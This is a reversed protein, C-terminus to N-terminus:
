GRQIMRPVPQIYSPSQGSGPARGSTNLTGPQLWTQGPTLPSPNQLWMTEPAAGVYVNWAAANRPANGSQILLTSASTKVAAPVACAGEEGQSNVWAMTVYYTNDPLPSTGQPGPAAVVGPIAPQPVPCSAIGIGTQILKEYAWDAMGHFQDRKGAYRDNLQNCYADAYVLELTRFTHSLKLAPTVVVSGMDPQPALWLSQGACSTRSLLTGLELALEDQALVLKQTVDIGEAVAVSLLQTDRATLDLICSVPGDTFLAM